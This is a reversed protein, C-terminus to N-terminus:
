FEGGGMLRDTDDAGGGGSAGVQAGHYSTDVALDGGAYGEGRERGQLIKSELQRGLGCLGTRVGSEFARGRQSLRLSLPVIFCLCGIALQTAQDWDSLNAASLPATPSDPDYRWRRPTLVYIISITLTGTNIALTAWRERRWYYVASLPAVILSLFPVGCLGVRSLLNGHQVNYAFMAITLLLQQAIWTATQLSPTWFRIARRSRLSQLFRSHSVSPISLLPAGQAVAYETDAFSYAAVPADTFNGDHNFSSSASLFTSPSTLESVPVGDLEVPEVVPSQTALKCVLRHLLYHAGVIWGMMAVRDAAQFQPKTYKSAHAVGYLLAIGAAAAYSTVVITSVFRMSFVEDSTSTLGSECVLAIANLLWAYYAGPAFWGSVGATEPPRQFSTRAEWQQRTFGVVALFVLVSTPAM